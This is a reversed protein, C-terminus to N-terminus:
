NKYIFINHKKKQAEEYCVDFIEAQINELVKKRSYKRLKLRKNLDNIETKTIVCLDVFSKPLFHSLHSDVVIGLPQMFPITIRKLNAATDIKKLKKLYNKIEKSFLKKDIKIYKKKYFKKELKNIEHMMSKVLKKEDVVFCKRKRDFSDYLKKTQILRTVNFYKLGFQGAITKALTTKGTGPTGSVAIVMWNM